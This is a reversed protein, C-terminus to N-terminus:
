EFTDYSMSFSRPTAIVMKPNQDVKVLLTYCGGGDKLLSITLTTQHVALSGLSSSGSPLGPPGPLRLLALPFEGLQKTEGQYEQGEKQSKGPNGPLGDLWRM